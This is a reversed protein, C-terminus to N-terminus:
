ISTCTLTKKFLRRFKKEEFAMGSDRLARLARTASIEPNEMYLNLIFHQVESESCRRGVRTPIPAPLREVTAEIKEKVTSLDEQFRALALVQNGLRINLTMMNGGLWQKMVSRSRLIYPTLSQIGTEGSTVVICQSIPSSLFRLGKELDEAIARIYPRSAVVVYRDEPHLQMLTEFARPGDQGPLRHYSLNNWWAQANNEENKEPVSDKQGQSFTAQYGPILDNAQLLGLGASIVHLHARHESSAQRAISWHPGKYSEEASLSSKLVAESANQMWASILSAIPKDLDPRQGLILGPAPLLRKQQTCTTILHLRAM